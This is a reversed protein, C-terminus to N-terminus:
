LVLAQLVVHAGMSLWAWGLLALLPIAGPAASLLLGALIYGYGLDPRVRWVAMCSVGLVYLQLPILWLWHIGQAALGLVLLDGVLWSCVLLNFLSGSQNRHGRRQLWWQFMWVYAWLALALYIWSFVDVWGPNKLTDLDVYTLLTLLSLVLLAHWRPFNFNSLPQYRFCFLSLASKILDIM